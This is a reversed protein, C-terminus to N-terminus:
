GAKKDLQNAKGLAIIRDAVRFSNAQITLTPAVGSSTPMFSGDTVFVNPASHVRCDPDLVSTKAEKGFRCTGCQLWPTVQDRRTAHVHKGGMARLVDLGRDVLAKNAKKDEAHMAAGDYRVVPLGYRDKVDPDLEVRRAAIPFTEGLVEFELVRTEHHHRMVADKLTQGWRLGGPQGLTALQEAAFIPNGHPRIFTVTGAKRPAGGDKYLYLDQFSRNVFPERFDIAQVRPDKRDFEAHGTGLGTFMLHRGVLGEANGLGQPHAKGKSLLLMRASELASCAVIVLRAALRQEKGAPDLYRVGTALGADDTDIARAMCKPKIQCNGTALAKPWLAALVSSKAGTECGYNACFHSYRCGARGSWPRSLISRMTPYAHLGLKTCAGDILKAFGNDRLPPLPLPRRRKEFPNKSVDGSIGLEIEAREYYPELEAWTLPWDALEAGEVAGLRTALDLDSPHMRYTLGAFQVTGGGVAAATWGEVTKAARGGRVVVHPEASPMPVFFDRRCSRIEDYVFDRQDYYPGKELVCVKYGARALGLAVPGAGAGSGIVVADVRGGKSLDPGVPKSWRKPAAETTQSV